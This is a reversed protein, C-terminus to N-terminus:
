ENVERSWFITPQFNQSFGKKFFQINHWKPDKIDTDFYGLSFKSTNGREYSRCIGDYLLFHSVGFDFLDREYVGVCYISTDDYDGFLSGAVLNDNYKALILEGFGKKIMEYQVRWSEDSRTKHGSIKYHFGQFKKFNEIDCNAKNLHTVELEKKGWNILSKYSKRLIGHFRDKRFDNYDVGMEFTLRSQFKLKFIQEGLPSLSGNQLSNKIIINKCKYTQALSKLYDLIKAYIQKEEKQELENYLKVIIGGDPLTLKEDLVCCIVHGLIKDNNMVVFTLDIFKEKYYEKYYESFLNLSRFNIDGTLTPEQKLDNIRIM